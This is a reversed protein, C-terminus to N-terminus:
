FRDQMFRLLALTFSHGKKLIRRIVLFEDICKWTDNEAITSMSAIIKRKQRAQQGLVTKRLKFICIDRKEIFLFRFDVENWCIESEQEKQISGRGLTGCLVKGRALFYGGSM